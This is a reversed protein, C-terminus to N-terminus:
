TLPLTFSVTTGKGVESEISVNGKNRDVFEKVLVLGLGTSQENETGRTHYSNSIEFIKSMAAEDMGVGNDSIRILATNNGNKSSRVTVKGDRSTFKIANSIINRVIVLVMNPDAKVKINNNTGFDVKIGKKEAMQEMGNFSRRLINDLEFEEPNYEVRNVQSRAWVLLNELLQSVNESSKSLTSIMEKLEKHSFEEFRSNVLQLFATLSQTPGRLDHAIIAFFKDKAANASKLEENKRRLKSYFWSTIIAILIAFLFGIIMLIKSNRHQKIELSSIENQKELEAIQSNKEDIEYITQLQEMKINASGILLQAQIEIQKEQWFTAKEFQGADLFIQSLRSYIEFQMKKQNNELAINLGRELLQQGEEQKGTKIKCLGKYEYISAMSLKDGLEKKIELAKNLYSEALKYNANAYEVKGLNKYANSIGYRSGSKLHIQLVEEINLRADNLRGEKINLLGIQEKCIAIGNGNGDVAAMKTYIGLSEQFYERAKKDLKLDAYIRGLLYATWAHGEVFNIKEYNLKAKIIYEIARDYVGNMRLITGMISYSAGVYRFNLSLRGQQIARNLFELAKIEQGKKHLLLGQLYLIETKHWSEEIANSLTLASDYYAESYDLGDYEGAIRGLLVYSQLELEKANKQKASSLASQVLKRAESESKEFILLALELEGKIREVGQSNILANRISDSKEVFSLNGSAMFPVVTGFFLLLILLINIKKTKGSDSNM